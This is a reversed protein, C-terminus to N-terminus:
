CIFWMECLDKISHYHGAVSGESQKTEKYFFVVGQM